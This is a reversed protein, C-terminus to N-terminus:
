IKKAIFLECRVFYHDPLKQVVAASEVFGNSVRINIHDICSIVLNGNVFEERTPTQITCETGNKSLVTLYDSVTSKSPKMVDTNFDDVLCINEETGLDGLGTKLEELFFLVSESPARYSALLFVSSNGNYVRLAQCEACLFDCDGGDLVM